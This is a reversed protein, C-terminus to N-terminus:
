YHWNFSVNYENQMQRVIEQEKAIKQSELDSKLKDM